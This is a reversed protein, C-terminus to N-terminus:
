KHIIINTMGRRKREIIKKAELKDLLRTTQVKSKNLKSKLDSQYISNDNLKLINIIEREEESLHIKRRKKEKIIHKINKNFIFYTSILILISLLTYSIIRQLKLSAYMPCSSGHSCNTTVIEALTWDYSIIILLLSLCFALVLYGVYKDKM